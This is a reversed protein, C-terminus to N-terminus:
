GYNSIKELSSQNLIEITKGKVEILKETKFEKLIRIVSEPSLGTLDALDNRSLPLIFQPSNYIHQSLCLLIDAVRGNSQKRTLSYFRSYIQATNENLINIIRSAFLSNKRLMQKFIEADILTATSDMYTAASYLFTHNGEYFSSLNILRSSPIIKLILDKANGELFVKVLGEKLFIVHSAFSGQKAIIEGKKYRIDISHQDIIQKEEASLAEFCTIHQNETACGPLNPIIRETM